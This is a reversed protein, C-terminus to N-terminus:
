FCMVCKIVYFVGVLDILNLLQIKVIDFIKSSDIKVNYNLYMIKIENDM